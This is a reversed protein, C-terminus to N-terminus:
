VNSVRCYVACAPRVDDFQALEPYRGFGRMLVMNAPSQDALIERTQALFENAVEVMRQSEPGHAVLPRPPIGTGQPDSDGVGDSLGQGRFVVGARYEMEAAVSVEVGPIDVASLLDCLARGKETPIRGARRDTVNGASDVTCFNLRLWM